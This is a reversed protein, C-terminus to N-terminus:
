PLVETNDEDTPPLDPNAPSGAPPSPDPAAAPEIQGASIDHRITMRALWAVVAALVIAAAAFVSRPGFAGAVLGGCLSGIPLAGWAILRYISTVRGLVKAPVQTQRLVVVVVNWLVTAAGSVALMAGALVPQPVSFIVVYGIGQATMALFLARETGLKRALYPGVRSAIVGGIAASGLLLGYGTKGLHLDEAAFVVLVALIGYSVLNNLGAIIALSRLLRHRWLARLGVPLDRLLGSLRQRLPPRPAPETAAPRARELDTRTRLRTLLLSSAAFSAADIGFPLGAVVAFLAGGAMPGAFESMIIEASMMRGNAIPLAERNVVQPVITQSTNRFFADCTGILFFCAYIALLTAKHTIVLVTFGGVLVARFGDVAAMARRGNVRDTIVGAPLSFLLYPLTLATAVGAVLRPDRTLTFALLPAATLAIGDGAYSVAAASWLKAFDRGTQEGTLLTVGHWAIRAARRQPLEDAQAM